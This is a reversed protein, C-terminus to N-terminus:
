LLVELAKATDLVSQEFDIYRLGTVRTAKEGSVRLRGEPYDLGEIRGTEANYGQYGAGPEGVPIREGIKTGRYERRLIDAAAQLPAYGQCACFRQGDAKESNEFAWIHLFAVDRVDVFGGSGMAPGITKSAGSLIDFLPKLTENLKSGSSPLHIPPGM